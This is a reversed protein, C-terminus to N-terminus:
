IPLSSSPWCFSDAAKLPIGVMQPDSIRWIPIKSAKAVLFQMFVYTPTVTGAQRDAARPGGFPNGHCNKNPLKLLFKNVCELKPWFRVTIVSVKCASRWADRRAQTVTPFGYGCALPVVHPIGSDSTVAAMRLLWMRAFTRQSHMCKRVKKSQSLHSFPFIYPCIRAPDPECKVSDAKLINLM